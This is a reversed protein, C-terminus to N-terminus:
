FSPLITYPDPTPEPETPTSTKLSCASLLASFILITIIKKM